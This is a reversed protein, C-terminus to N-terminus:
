SGIRFLEKRESPTFGYLGSILDDLEDDISDGGGQSLIDVMDVITSLEGATVRAIDPVPVAKLLTVELRNYGRGYKPAYTRMHWNCVSSNLVACFFRLLTHEEGQDTAIIFPSHSVALKGTTDVAFRPTLMLHPCVIKPRLLTAPERPWAPKWWPVRHTSVSRRAVLKDKNESLYSWTKPFRSALTEASLPEEDLFPFFVVKELKTPVRFRGIQRDPLYDIYIREEGRPVDRRLIIFIDDAGTVFGQKITMFSAMRPLERLRNDVRAQEPTVIIWEKRRFSQQPVTFVRHYPTNVEVGDLCAQLAAGVGETIQAVRAPPGESELSHRRQAILLISYAGAGEFVPVSSLDVFCRVDFSDSITKRIQTANSATMFTQPLVVCVFGDSEVLELCLRVFPIYADIRGLDKNGLYRRYVDRDSAGLHDLKVYPPNTIAVAFSGSLLRGKLAAEIANENVVKLTRLDPLSGTTILYLLALSLRTAECANADSDIGEANSFARYITTDTTGPMTPDCQLELLTRLFIGSGCAPDISRLERFRRPTTNEQLFRAFFGAIFQPTYVAGSKKSTLEEPMAAIFSLQPGEDARLLSVYKEYIRSLAHKSMLAFNFDYAADRPAYLDRLLNTATARDVERFPEVAGKPVFEFLPTPIGTHGLAGVLIRTLDVTAGTESDLAKLLARDVGAPRNLDRDECGRVLILANFLASINRNSIKPYDAKLLLKWRAIVQLLADDCAKLSRRVGGAGVMEDLYSASLHKSFDGAAPRFL